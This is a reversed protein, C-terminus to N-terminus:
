DKFTSAPRTIRANSAKFGITPADTQGASGHNFHSRILADFTSRIFDSHQIRPTSKARQCHTLAAATVLHRSLVVSCIQIENFANDDFVPLGRNFQGHQAQTQRKTASM